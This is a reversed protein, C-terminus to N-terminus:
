CVCHDTIEAFWGLHERLKTKPDELYAKKGNGWTHFPDSKFKLIKGERKARRKIEEVTCYNCKTLESM